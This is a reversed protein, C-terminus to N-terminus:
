GVRGLLLNDLEHRAKESFQARHFLSEVATILNDAANEGSMLANALGEGLIPNVFGAADGLRLIPGNNVPATGLNVGMYLNSFIYPSVERGILRQIEPHHYLPIHHITL